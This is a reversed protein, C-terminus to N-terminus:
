SKFCVTAYLVEDNLVDHRLRELMQQIAGNYLHIGHRVLDNDHNIKGLYLCAISSLARELMGSKNPLAALNSVFSYFMDVNTSGTVAAPFYSGIFSAFLQMRM